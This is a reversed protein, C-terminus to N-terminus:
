STTKVKQRKISRIGSDLPPIADQDRIRGLAVAARKRMLSDPHHLLIEVLKPTAKKRLRVLKNLGGYEDGGMLEEINNSM